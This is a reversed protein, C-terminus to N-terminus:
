GTNRFAGDEINRSARINFVGSYRIIFDFHIEQHIIFYLLSVQATAVKAILSATPHQIQQLSRNINILLFCLYYLCINYVALSSLCIVDIFITWNELRGM